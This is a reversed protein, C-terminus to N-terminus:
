MALKKQDCKFCGLRVIALCSITLTSVKLKLKGIMFPVFHFAIFHYQWVEPVGRVAKPLRWVAALNM